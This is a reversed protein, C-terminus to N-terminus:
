AGSPILWPSSSRAGPRCRRSAARWTANALRQGSSTSVDPVTSGSHSAIHPVLRHYPAVLIRHSIRYQSETHHQWYSRRRSEVSASTCVPSSLVSAHWPHQAVLDAINWRTDRVSM